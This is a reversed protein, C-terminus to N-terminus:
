AKFSSRGPGISPTTTFASAALRFGSWKGYRRWLEREVYALKINHEEEEAIARPVISDWGEGGIKGGKGSEEEDSHSSFIAEVAELTSRGPFGTSGTLGLGLMAVWFCKLAQRQQGEELSAIIHELAWLSTVLHLVLFSGTHEASNEVEETPDEGAGYGASTLYFLNVMKYLGELAKEVPMDDLWSPLAYLIPHGEELVKAVNWQFGSPVLEAHFGTAEGYKPGVILDSAWSGLDQSTWEDAVRLLSQFPTSDDHSRDIFREPHASVHCFALYAMGEVTMWRHGADLAWGLHILGHTLGGVCGPILLPAYRQLTAPTGLEQVRKDFFKCLAPFDVKKGLIQELDEDTLDKTQNLPEAPELPLGYPTLKTYEDWYGRIRSPPASLGALAIVAHKVHNSLYGNFEIHYQTDDLLSEVVNKTEVGLGWM